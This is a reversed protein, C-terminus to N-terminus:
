SVSFSATKRDREQGEENMLIVEVKYKGKPWGDPPPTFTYTATGSSPLDLTEELGPIPGSQQGSVEEVVLRAKIKVKRPSNSITGVAYITDGPAFTSAEAGVSKDKSVKVSSINATSASFNTTTPLKKFEMGRWTINGSSELFDVAGIPTGSKLSGGSLECTYVGAWLDRIVYKDGDRSIAIEDGSRISHWHGIFREGQNSSCALFVALLVVVLSTRTM